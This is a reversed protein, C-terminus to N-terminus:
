KVKMKKGCAFKCFKVECPDLLSIFLCKKKNDKIYRKLIEIQKKYFKISADELEVKSAEKDKLTDKLEVKPAEKHEDESEDELEDKPDDKPSYPTGFRMSEIFYISNQLKFKINFLNTLYRFNREIYNSIKNLILATGRSFNETYKIEDKFTDQPDEVINLSLYTGNLIEMKAEYKLAPLVTNWLYSSFVPKLCKKKLKTLPVVIDKYYDTITKIIYNELTDDVLKLFMFNEKIKNIINFKNLKEEINKESNDVNCGGGSIKNKENLYKTKYKLYKLYYLDNNM